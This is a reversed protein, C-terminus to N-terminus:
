YRMWNKKKEKQRTSRCLHVVNKKGISSRVKLLKLGKKAWLSIRLLVFSGLRPRFMGHGRPYVVLIM